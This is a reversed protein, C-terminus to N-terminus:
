SLQDVKRMQESAYSRLCILEKTMKQYENDKEILQARLDTVQKTYYSEMKNYNKQLGEMQEVLEPLEYSTNKQDTQDEEEGVEEESKVRVPSIEKEQWMKFM